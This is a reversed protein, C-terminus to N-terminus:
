QLVTVTGDSFSGVASIQDRGSLVGDWACAKRPVLSPPGASTVRPRPTPIGLGPHKGACDGMPNVTAVTATLAAGAEGVSAEM